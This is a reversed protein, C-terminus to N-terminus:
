TLNMGSERQIHEQNELCSLAHHRAAELPKLLPSDEKKM